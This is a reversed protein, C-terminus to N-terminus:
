FRTADDLVHLRIRHRELAISLKLRDDGARHHPGRAHLARQSPALSATAAPASSSVAPRTFTSASKESGPRALSYTMPSRAAYSVVGPRVSGPTAWGATGPPAYTARRM